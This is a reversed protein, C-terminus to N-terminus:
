YSTLRTTHRVMLLPGRTSIFTETRSCRTKVALNKSTYFTVIRVGNINSDEHLGDNAITPKFINDRGVKARFDGLLLQM